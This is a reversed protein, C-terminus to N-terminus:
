HDSQLTVTTDMLYFSLKKVAIYIVYVEKPM